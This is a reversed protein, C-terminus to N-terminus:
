IPRAVAYTLTCRCNPEGPAQLGNSFPEDIPRQEGDLAQHEERVRGDQSSLWTKMVVRGSDAQFRSATARQAGNWARTTETRAVLAARDPGFAPLESLRDIMRGITDGDKLGRQVADVVLRSTTEGMVGALFDAERAAYDMLGPQLLDFGVGIRASLTRVAQGGTALVLPEVIARMRPRADKMLKDFALQFEDASDRGIAKEARLTARALKLTEAREVQLAALIASAWAPENAKTSADFDTWLSKTRRKRSIRVRAGLRKGIRRVARLAKADEDEEDEEDDTAEEDELDESEEDDELDEEDDAEAGPGFPSAGFTVLGAITEGREDGLPDKGTFERREDVTWIGANLTAIRARREDDEQLARVNSWDFRISLGRDIEEPSLLATTLAESIKQWLPVVTDSHAQRDMQEAQSWPSNRLGVLFGLVIPPVGFTAGITAEVRDLVEAPVLDAAGLGVRSFTAGGKLTLPVGANAPGGYWQAIAAKFRDWDADTPDWKPDSSIVGGPFMAKLMFNRLMRDVSHGLNVKSLAVELRSTLSHWQGGALIERFDIVDRRDVPQWSGNALVEYRGFIMGDGSRTRVELGSFPAFQVVEGAVNREAVWVARATTDRYRITLDLLEALSMDPRPRAFVKSLPHRRDWEVGDPTERAVWLPAEAVKRARWDIAAFAYASSLAATRVNLREVDPTVEGTLYVMRGTDPVGVFQVGTNMKGEPKRKPIAVASVGPAPSGIRELFKGLRVLAGGPTGSVEDPKPM